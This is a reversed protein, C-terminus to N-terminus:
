NTSWTTIASHSVEWTGSSGGMTVKISPNTGNIEGVVDALVSADSTTVTGAADLNFTGSNDKRYRATVTAHASASGDTKIAVVTIQAVLTTKNSYYANVHISASSVGSSSLVGHNYAVIETGMAASSYTVSADKYEIAGTSTNRTLVQDAANDKTPTDSIKVTGTLNGTVALNGGIQVNGEFGASWKNTYALNSGAAPLDEVYFNYANTLTTTAVSGAISTPAEILTFAQRAITGNLNYQVTRASSLRNDIIEASLGTTNVPPRTYFTEGATNTAQGNFIRYTFANAWRLVSSGLGTNASVIPTFTFGDSSVQVGNASANARVYLPVQGSSGTITVSGATGIAWNNTGGSATHFSAYNTSTTGTNTNSFKAGFTTQTSTGNAGSSSVNLVTKTNSAAATGTNSLSVLNGSTVTSSTLALGNGTTTTYTDGALNLKSNLQTQASSTLGKVYSLETLSPYTAVPLSAITTASNGYVLENTTLGSVGGSPAAWTPVGSSSTLVYGNTGAAIRSLYGSSNRYYMDNTADSGINLTTGSNDFILERQTLGNLSYIGAVSYVGDASVYWGAYRDTDNKVLLSWNNQDSLFENEFAGDNVNRFNIQSGQWIFNTAGIYYTDLADPEVDGFSLSLGAGDITTNETLSGGWKVAGGSETLGNTFTYSSSGGGSGLLQWSSGNYFQWAPVTRQANFRIAGWGSPVTATSDTVRSVITKVPTLQASAFFPVFAILYILFHKKM